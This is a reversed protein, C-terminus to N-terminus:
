TGRIATVVPAATEVDLVANLHVMGDREFLSLARRNRREDERPELGDPDLWAEARVVLKRVDDLALGAAKEALM